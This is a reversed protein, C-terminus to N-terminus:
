FPRLITIVTNKKCVAVFHPTYIRYHGDISIKEKKFTNKEIEKNIKSIIRKKSATRDGIRKKYRRVAHQKINM